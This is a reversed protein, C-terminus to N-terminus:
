VGKKREKILSAAEKPTIEGDELKKLIDSHDIEVEPEDSPKYGM